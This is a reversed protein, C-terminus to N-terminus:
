GRGVERLILLCNTFYSIVFGGFILIALTLGMANVNSM